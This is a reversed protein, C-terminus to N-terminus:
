VALEQPHNGYGFNAVSYKMNGSLRVKLSLADNLDRVITLTSM